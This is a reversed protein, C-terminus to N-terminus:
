SMHGCHFNVFHVRFGFESFLMQEAFANVYFVIVTEELSRFHNKKVFDHNKSFTNLKM